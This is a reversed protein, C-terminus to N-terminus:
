SEIATMTIASCTEDQHGGLLIVGRGHACFSEINRNLEEPLRIFGTTTLDSKQSRYIVQLAPLMVTNSADVYKESVPHPIYVVQLVDALLHMQSNGSCLSRAWDELSLGDVLYTSREHCLIALIDSVDSVAGTMTHELLLQGFGDKTRWLQLDMELDLTSHDKREIHVLQLGYRKSRAEDVIGGNANVAYRGLYLTQDITQQSHLEPVGDFTFIHAIRYEESNSDMYENKGNM